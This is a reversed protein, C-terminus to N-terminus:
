WCILEITLKLIYLVVVTDGYHNNLAYGLV